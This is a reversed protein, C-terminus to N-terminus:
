STIDRSSMVIPALPELQVRVKLALRQIGLLQLILYLLDQLIIRLRAITLLIQARQRRRIPLRPRVGSLLVERLANVPRREICDLLSGKHDNQQLLLKRMRWLYRVNEKSMSLSPYCANTGLFFQTKPKPIPNPIYTVASNYIHM